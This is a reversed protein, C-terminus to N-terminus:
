DRYYEVEAARAVTKNSKPNKAIYLVVVYNKKTMFFKSIHLTNPKISEYGSFKFIQAVVEHWNKDANEIISVIKM